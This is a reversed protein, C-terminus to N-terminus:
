FKQFNFRQSVNAYTVNYVDYSCSDLAAANGTKYQLTRFSFKTKPSQIQDSYPYRCTKMCGLKWHNMYHDLYKINCHFRQM